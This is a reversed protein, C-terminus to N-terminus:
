DAGGLLADQVADDEDSDTIKLEQRAARLASLKEMTSESTRVIRDYQMMRYHPNLIPLGNIIRKREAEIAAANKELFTEVTAVELDLESAIEQVSRFNAAATIAQGARKRNDQDPRGLTGGSPGAGGHLGHVAGQPDGGAGEWHAVAHEDPGAALNGEDHRRRGM